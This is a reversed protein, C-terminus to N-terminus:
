LTCRNADASAAGQTSYVAGITQSTELPARDSDDMNYYQASVNVGCAPTSTTLELTVRGSTIGAATLANQIETSFSKIENAAITGLEGLDVAVGSETTAVGFVEGAVANGNTVWIFPLNRAFSTPMAYIDVVSGNYVWAGGVSAIAATTEENGVVAYTDGNAAATATNTDVYAADIPQYEVVTSVTFPTDPIQGNATAPAVFNTAADNELTLTIGGVLTASLDATNDAGAYDYVITISSATVTTSTPAPAVTVVGAGFQVGATNADTDVIWSFDGSVTTTINSTLAHHGTTNAEAFDIVLVDVDTNTQPTATADLVFTKKRSAAVAPDVDIVGNFPAATTTAAPAISYQNVFSFLNTTDNLAAAATASGDAQADLFPVPTATGDLADGNQTLAAYTGTLGAGDGNNATRLDNAATSDSSTLTFTAGTTSIACDDGDPTTVGAADNACGAGGAAQAAVLSTVRYTATTATSNILGLRLSAFNDSSTDPATVPTSAVLNPAYTGTVPASFTFTVTDDETYETGMTVQIDPVAFATVDEAAQNTWLSQQYDFAPAAFAGASGLAAGVSVALFTKKLVKVEEIQKLRGKTIL